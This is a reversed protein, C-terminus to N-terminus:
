EAYLGFQNLVNSFGCMETPCSSGPQWPPCGHNQCRPEPCKVDLFQMGCMYEGAPRNGKRGIEWQMAIAYLHRLDNIDQLLAMSSGTLEGHFNGARFWVPLPLQRHVAEFNDGPIIMSWPDDLRLRLARELYDLIGLGFIRLLALPSDRLAQEFEAVEKTVRDASKSTRELAMRFGRGRNAIHLEIQEPDRVLLEDYLALYQGRIKAYAEARTHIENLMSPWELHRCVEEVFREYDGTIRPDVFEVNDLAGIIRVFRFSPHFGLRDAETVSFHLSMDLVAALTGAARYSDNCREKFKRFFLDMPATYAHLPSDSPVGYDPPIIITVGLRYLPLQSNIFVLCEQFGQAGLPTAFFTREADNWRVYEYCQKEQNLQFVGVSADGLDDDVARSAYNGDLTTRHLQFHEIFNAKVQSMGFLMDSVDGGLDEVAAAAFNLMDLLRDHNYMTGVAQLFHQYEHLFSEIHEADSGGSGSDISLQLLVPLFDAAPIKTAPLTPSKRILLAQQVAASFEVGRVSKLLDLIQTRFRQAIRDSNLAKLPELLASGISAADLSSTLPLDLWAELLRLARWRGRDPFGELVLIFLLLFQVVTDLRDVRGLASGRLARRLEPTPTEDRLSCGLWSEFAHLSADVGAMRLLALGTVGMADAEQRLAEELPETDDASSAWFSALFYLASVFDDQAHVDLAFRLWSERTFRIPAEVAFSSVIAPANQLFAMEMCCIAFDRSNDFAQTGRAQVRASRVELNPPPSALHALAPHVRPIEPHHALHEIHQRVFELRRLCETAFPPPRRSLIAAISRKTFLPLCHLGSREDLLHRIM